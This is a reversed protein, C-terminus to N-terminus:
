CCRCLPSSAKTIRFHCVKVRAFAVTQKRTCRDLHTRLHHLHCWLCLCGPNRFNGVLGVDHAFLQFVQDLMCRLSIFAIARLAPTVEAHPRNQQLDKALRLLGLDLLHSRLQNLGRLTQLENTGYPSSPIPARPGSLRPLIAIAAAILICTVPAALSWFDTAKVGFLQSALYRAMDMGAGIGLAMGAMVPLSADSVVLRVVATRQAGLAIRIGIERTRRVAAYNIVGYLGVGALLLAVVSFFGALLALLREIILINDIQSALLISGRVRLEPAATEVEKHLWPILSAARSGTRINLTARAVDRLPTYICPQVPERLNNYRVNGAVGVIRQRVPDPDDTLKEFTQGLPNRGTLFKDVFAQNVITSESNAAIEEPLFDRGSIWRIQMASFFGESVPVECPRVTENPRGPLRIIPTMIWVLAGGMPRQQSISAARVAPLQRIHDLLQAGSNPRHSQPQRSEVDILAVNDRAFGLNVTILKRFSLLLLGSLFLVSM